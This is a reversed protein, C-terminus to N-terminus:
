NEEQLAALMASLTVNEMEAEALLDLQREIVDFSPQLGHYLYITGNDMANVFRSLLLEECDQGCGIDYMNGNWLVISLDYEIAINFLPNTVIGMPPRVAVPEYAFGLAREMEDYWPEVEWWKLYRQDYETIDTHSYLHCGFEHGMDYLKKYLDAYGESPNDVNATIALGAPFFTIPIDREAYLEGIKLAIAEDWLDDYTLCVQPLDERGKFIVRTTQQASIIRQPMLLSMAAGLGVGLFHRRSIAM